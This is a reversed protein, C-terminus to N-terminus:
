DSELPEPRNDRLLKRLQALMFTTGAFYARLFERQDRETFAEFHKRKYSGAIGSHHRPMPSLDHPDRHLSLEQLPYAEFYGKPAVYPDHPKRFGVALFFPRDHKGEIFEVALKASLGDPQDEDSGEAARWHM